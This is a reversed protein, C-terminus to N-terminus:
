RKKSAEGRTSCHVPSIPLVYKSTHYSPKMRFDIKICHVSHMKYISIVYTMGVLTPSIYPIMLVHKRWAQM